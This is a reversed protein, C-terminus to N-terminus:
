CPLDMVTLDIRDSGIQGDGDSARLVVV